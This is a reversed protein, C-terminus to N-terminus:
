KIRTGEIVQWALKFDPRSMEAQAWQQYKIYGGPVSEWAYLGYESGGSGGENEEVRYHVVRSEIRRQEAWSGDPQEEGRHLTVNIELPYRSYANADGPPVILFGDDTESTTLSDPLRVSLGNPHVVERTNRMVNPETSFTCSVSLITAMVCTLKM